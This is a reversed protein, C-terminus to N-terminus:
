NNKLQLSLLLDHTVLPLEYVAGGWFTYKNTLNMILEPKVGQSLIIKQLHINIEIRKALEKDKLLGCLNSLKNWHEGNISSPNQIAMVTAEHLLYDWFHFNWFRFFSKDLKSPLIKDEILISLSDIFNFIGVYVNDSSWRARTKETQEQYIRYTSIPLDIYICKKKHGLLIVSTGHSFADASFKQSILNQNVIEHVLEHSLICQSIFGSILFFSFKQVLDAMGAQYINNTHPALRTNGASAFFPQQSKLIDSVKQLMNENLDDDDGFWWIYDSATSVDLALKFVTHFNIYPPVKCDLRKSIIFDFESKLSEIVSETSDDSCNDSVVILADIGSLLIEKALLRVTINLQEARNWTPIAFVIRM